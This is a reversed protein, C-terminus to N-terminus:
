LTIQKELKIVGELLKNTYSGSTILLDYVASTFDLQSSSIASIYIGINGSIPSVFGTTSFASGSFNLGTGDSQLSSSLTIIVTSSGLNPRLQMKGSYGTLDVYTGLSDTYIIPLDLTAGQCITFNYKAGCTACSM